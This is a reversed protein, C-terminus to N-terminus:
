GSGDLASTLSLTSGYRQEGELDDHGRRPHVKGKGKGKGKGMSYPLGKIAKSVKPGTDKANVYSSNPYINKGPPVFTNIFIKQSDSQMHDLLLSRFVNKSILTTM